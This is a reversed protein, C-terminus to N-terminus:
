EDGIRALVRSFDRNPTSREALIEDAINKNRRPPLIEEEEEEEEFTRRARPSEPTTKSLSPLPSRLSSEAKLEPKVPAREEVFHPINAPVEAAPEMMAALGLDALLVPAASGSGVLLRRTEGTPEVVEVLIISNRDGLSQRQVIRLAPSAVAPKGLKRRQWLLWGLCGSMLLVPVVWGPVTPGPEDAPVPASAVAETEAFLRDYTGAETVPPAALAVSLLLALM